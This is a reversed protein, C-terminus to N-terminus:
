MLMPDPLDTDNFAGSQGPPPQVPQAPQPPQSLGGAVLPPLDEFGGDNNAPPPQFPQAPQSPQPPQSLGGAVLPPLMDDDDGDLGPVFPTNQGGSSGPQTSLQQPELLLQRPHNVNMYELYSKTTQRKLCRKGVSTEWFDVFIEAPVTGDELTYFSPMKLIVHIYRLVKDSSIKRRLLDFCVDREFKSKTKEYEKSYEKVDLVWQTFEDMKDPPSLIVWKQESANISSMDKRLYEDKKDATIRGFIQVEEESIEDFQKLVLKSILSKFKREEEAKADARALARARIRDAQIDKMRQKEEAKRLICRKLDFFKSDSSTLVVTDVFDSPNSISGLSVGLYHMAYMEMQYKVDWKSRSTLLTCIQEVIGSTPSRLDSLISSGSVTSDVMIENLTREIWSLIASNELSQNFTLMTGGGDVGTILIYSEDDGQQDKLYRMADEGFIEDSLSNCVVGLALQNLLHTTHGVSSNLYDDFANEFVYRRYHDASPWLRKSEPDVLIEPTFVFEQDFRVGLKTRMTLKPRENCNLTVHGCYLYGYAFLINLFAALVKESISKVLTLQDERSAFDGLGEIGVNEVGDDSVDVAVRTHAIDDKTSVYPGPINDIKVIDPDVTLNFVKRSIEDMTTEGSTSMKIFDVTKTLTGTDPYKKKYSKTLSDLRKTRETVQDMFLKQAKKNENTYGNDDRELKETADVYGAEANAVSKEALEIQREAELKKEEEESTIPLVEGQRYFTASIAVALLHALAIRATDREKDALQQSPIDFWISAICRRKGSADAEYTVSTCMALCSSVTGHHPVHSMVRDKFYTRFKYFRQEKIFEEKQRDAAQNAAKRADDIEKQKPDFKPKSSM